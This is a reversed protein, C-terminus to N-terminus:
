QLYSVESVHFRDKSSFQLKPRVDAGIAESIHNFGDKKALQELEMNIESIIEPGEFIMGTIMQVLSAGRKIKTYADEASFVGGCGIIVLSKGYQEYTLQILHNSRAYTPKGSFNGVPYKSVENQDLSPHSRDKQLNGFIVGTIGFQGILELMESVEKDTKEIPMKIFIPKSIRLFAIATLLKRLHHPPYFSIEGLLNPCSINLEYYSFPVSSLEAKQLASVIDSISEELNLYVSNTRGVSLGIPIAFTKGALNQLVQKIGFNKFGKNVLLSKSKVLRGLRPGPNGAYASNTITGVTGFGFSLSPLIQTLQAKYDFGASLGIPYPFEIGAVKQCLFTNDPKFLNGLATRAMKSRGLVEGQSTLKEHITESNFRFLIPRVLHRYGKHYMKVLALRTNM